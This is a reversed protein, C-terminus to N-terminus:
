GMLFEAERTGLQMQEAYELWAEPTLGTIARLKDQGKELVQLDEAISGSVGPAQVTMMYTAFDLAVPDESALIGLDPLFPIDSFPYDDTQPTIANLFNIFFAGGRLHAKATHAAEVLRYQFETISAPQIRFAQRPCTMFCGLCGNCIAREFVITPEGASIAGTPCFPLCAGCNDCKEQQFELELCEHVRAKGSGTLLGLGLNFVAGALGMLPHATVHSIVVLGGTDTLLSGLEVGGLHDGEAPYFNGEEGTYGSALMLQSDFTEGGSFGQVLAAQNWNYGDFRAGKHLSCSDTVVPRAGQNRLKEFLTTFIIPPLYYPYGVESLNMKIALSREPAVLRSMEELNYLVDIKNIISQYINLSRGKLWYVKAMGIDQATILSRPPAEYSRRERGDQHVKNPLIGM